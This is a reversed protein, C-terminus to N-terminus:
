VVIQGKTNIMNAPIGKAVFYNKVENARALGLNEFASPNKETSLAFGTICLKEGDTGIASKLKEIGIDVSDKVPLIPKFDGNLFNFNGNCQYDMGKGKVIATLLAINGSQRLYYQSPFKGTEETITKLTDTIIEDTWYDKDQRTIELGFKEKFSSRIFGIPSFHYANDMLRRYWCADPRKEQILVRFM